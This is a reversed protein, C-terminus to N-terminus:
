HNLLGLISAIDILILVFEIASFPVCSHTLAGRAGGFQFCFRGMNSYKIVQKTVKKWCQKQYSKPDIKPPDQVRFVYIGHPLDKFNMTKIHPPRLFPVMNAGNQSAKPIMEDSTPVNNDDIKPHRKQLNNKNENLKCVNEM